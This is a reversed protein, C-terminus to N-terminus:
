ARYIGGLIASKSAGTVSPINGPQHNLTQYALWAFACAEMWQAPIGVVDTSLIKTQCYSQLRDMLYHNNVGGGCAWIHTAEHTNLVDAISRATLEILTAQVDQPQLQSYHRLHKALWALNFYEFGTSKPPSKKFFPDSLLSELLAHSVMGMRGFEGNEDYRKHRHQMCWADLLTNGPGTDFGIVDHDPQLLTVNAIGGINLVWQMSKVRQLLFQHFAPVLPAGQGGLAVDRRRFDAITTINTQAAIVSPDGIQLTFPYDGEPRHRITQGHSGIAKIHQTSLSTQQLLENVADAFLRGLKVDLQGLQDITGDTSQRLALLEDHLQNDIPHSHSHILRITNKKIDVLVADISDMSTGSMLGIYYNAKTDTEQHIM